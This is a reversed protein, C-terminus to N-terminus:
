VTIPMLTRDSLWKFGKEWSEAQFRFEVASALLKTRALYVREIQLQVEEARRHAERVQRQQARVDELTWEGLPKINRQAQREQILLDILKQRKGNDADIVSRIGSLNM